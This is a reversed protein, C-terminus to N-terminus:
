ISQSISQGIGPAVRMRTRRVEKLMYHTTGLTTMGFGAVILHFAWLGNIAFPGSKFYPLFTLPIFTISIVIAFWGLGRSIMVPKRTDMLAFVGIAVFQIATIMWTMNFIYWAIFHLTRTLQPDVTGASEACWVWICPCMVLIWATLLGGTLQMLALVPAKERQMMQASLLCTWPLYFMGFCAALSMGLMIGSRYKLYYNDVLEQATFMPDPPPYNHSLVIWGAFFTFLCLPGTWAVALHLKKVSKENM